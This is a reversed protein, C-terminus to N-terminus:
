VFISALSTRTNPGKGRTNKSTPRSRRSRRAPDNQTMAKIYAEDAENQAALFGTAVIALLVATLLIRKM